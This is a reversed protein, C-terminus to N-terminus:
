YIRDYGQGHPEISGSLASRGRGVPVGGAAEGERGGIECLGPSHRRRFSPPLVGPAGGPGAGRWTAGRQRRQCRGGERCRWGEDSKRTVEVGGRRM